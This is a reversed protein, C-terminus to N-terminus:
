TKKRAKESTLVKFKEGLEQRRIGSEEDEPEINPRTSSVDILTTEM